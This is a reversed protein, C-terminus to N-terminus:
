LTGIVSRSGMKHIDYNPIVTHVFDPTKKATEGQEGAFQWILTSMFFLSAHDTNIKAEQIEVGYKRKVLEAVVCAELGKLSAASEAFRWNIPISPADNGTFTIKSVFDEAGKPLLNTLKDNQFVGQELVRKAEQPVSYSSGVQISGM